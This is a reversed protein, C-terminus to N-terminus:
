LAAEDEDDLVIAGDPDRKVHFLAPHEREMRKLAVEQRSIIGQQRRVQDALRENELLLARYALAQEIVALLEEDNWPKSVFRFIQAENIAGLLAASDSYGSLIIRMAAPQQERFARLFAVGDMEPMRYDAIVLDFTTVGCRRLAEGPDIYCEVEYDHALLLRRLAKLINEEDDVLLIRSM